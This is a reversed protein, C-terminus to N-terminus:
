LVLRMLTGPLVHGGIVPASEEQAEFGFAAYFREAGRASDALLSELGAARAEDICRRLMAAGIGRRLWLPDTAFHRIHGTGTTLAGTGPAEHTWGGCGVVMGRDSVAVFFTGSALLAPNARTVLPRVAELLDADYLGAWLAPYSRDLLASVPEADDPM